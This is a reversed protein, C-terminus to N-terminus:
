LRNYNRMLVRNVNDHKIPSKVLILPIITDKIAKTLVRFQFTSTLIKRYFFRMELSKGSDIKMIKFQAHKVEQRISIFIQNTLITFRYHHCNSTMKRLCFDHFTFKCIDVREVGNSSQVVIEVGMVMNILATAGGQRSCHSMRM